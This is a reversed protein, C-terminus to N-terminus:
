SVIGPFLYLVVFAAYLCAAITLVSTGGQYFHWAVAWVGQEPGMLVNRLKDPDMTLISGVGELRKWNQHQAYRFFLVGAVIFLFLSSLLVSRTMTPLGDLKLQALTFAPLAFCVSVFVMVQTSDQSYVDLLLKIKDADRDPDAM